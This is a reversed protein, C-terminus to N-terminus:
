LNYLLSFSIQNGTTTAGTPGTKLAAHLWEVGLAYPGTKYRILGDATQNQWRTAGASVVDDKNPSDIGYFAYAGWHPDFNYGIQTWGGVGGIDGAQALLGLQQGIAKGYFANGAFSFGETSYRAGIEAAYGNLFKSPISDPHNVGALDKRDFHAVIYGGWASTPSIKGDLNLRAELQPVLSANGATMGSNLDNNGAAPATFWSPKMAAFQIQATTPTSLGIVPHSNHHYPFSPMRDTVSRSRRIKFM